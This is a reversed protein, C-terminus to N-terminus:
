KKILNKMANNLNQFDEGVDRVQINEKRLWSWTETDLIDFWITNWKNENIFYRAPNGAPVLMLKNKGVLNRSTPTELYGSGSITFIVVHCNFNSRRIDYGEKLQSIGANCIGEKNLPSEVIIGHGIDVQISNDGIKIYDKWKKIKNM